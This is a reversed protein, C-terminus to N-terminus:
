YRQYDKEQTTSEPLNLCFSFKSTDREYVRDVVPGSEFDEFGSSVESKIQIQGMLVTRKKTDTNMSIIKAGALLIKLDALPISGLVEQSRAIALNNNNIECLIHGSKDAIKLALM